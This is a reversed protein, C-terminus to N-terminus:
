RIPEIGNNSAKEKKQLPEFKTLCMLEGLSGGMHGGQPKDDRDSFYAYYTGEVQVWGNSVWHISNPSTNSALGGVWLGRKSPEPSLDSCEFECHYYGKVSVRKRLFEKPHNLLYNLDVDRAPASVKEWVETTVTAGAPYTNWINTSFARALNHVTKQVGSTPPTYFFVLVKKKGVRSTLMTQVTCNTVRRPQSLTDVGAAVLNSAFTSFISRAIEYRFSYNITEYTLEDRERMEGHFYEAWPNKDRDYVTLDFWDGCQDSYAYAPFTEYTYQFVAQGFAQTAICLVFTILTKIKM